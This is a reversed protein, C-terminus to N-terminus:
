VLCLSHTEFSGLTTAMGELAAYASGPETCPTNEIRAIDDFWAKLRGEESELGDLRDIVYKLEHSADDLAKFWQGDKAVGLEELRM